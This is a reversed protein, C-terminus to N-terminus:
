WWFARRLREGFPLAGHGGSCGAPDYSENFEPATDAVRPFLQERVVDEGDTTWAVLVRDGSAILRDRLSPVVFGNVVFVLRHEGDDALRRGDELEIWDAGMAWGLNTALHGWTVGDDHVHVVDHNGEHMHVRQEPQLADGGSCATVDEMYRDGTLDLRTGDVFVAWNAHYHVPDPWPTFAFRAAGLALVGFLFGVAFKM